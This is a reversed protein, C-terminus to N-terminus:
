RGEAEFLVLADGRHRTLRGPQVDIRVNTFDITGLDHPTIVFTMVNGHVMDLPFRQSRLEYMPVAFEVWRPTRKEEAPLSWGYEQTYGEVPEGADFGIRFDVAPIGGGHPGTVHLILGAEKSTGVAGRSFVAQVPTPITTLHLLKGDAQWRGASQEDLSGAALFYTFRGDASLVLESAVDPGGSVRYRGALSQAASAIQGTWLLAVVFLLRGSAIGAQEHGWM